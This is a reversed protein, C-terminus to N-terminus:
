RKHMFQRAIIRLQGDCSATIRAYEEPSDVDQQLLENQHSVNELISAVIEHLRAKIDKMALEVDADKNIGNTQLYAHLETEIRPVYKQLIRMNVNIHKQEHAMIEHFGCSDQPIDRAVYVVVNEYGVSVDVHEVHTCSTGDSRRVGVIPANIAIVPEYRTLGLTLGEHIAHHMDSSMAVIDGIGVHFDYSPADFRPTVHVAIDPNSMCANYTEIADEAMCPSVAFLLCSALIIYIQKM